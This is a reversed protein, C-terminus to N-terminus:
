GHANGVANGCPTRHHCKCTGKKVVSDREGITGNLSPESIRRTRTKKDINITKKSNEKKEQRSSFQTVTPTVFEVESDILTDGVAHQSRATLIGAPFDLLIM